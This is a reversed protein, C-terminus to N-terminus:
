QNGAVTMGDIRVTPANVSMRFILDNAPTLERFMDLLNGAITAEAVPEAIRGDRILFGGAGRSYDGTLGNVGMGILETVYLGLKIDAILTEPSLAGAELWLNSTGASPAGSTGRSAQGTPALGLQRGTASDVMWGGLVGDSILAVRRTKLGEGDFARSRLGRMLHPDDIVSVGPRFIREGERGILYSTGRAIAAGNMAGVLHGILSTSVRPDFVVPIPGTPVKVPKLRRIAREGATRGIKEPSELDSFYRTHHWDYDRQMGDGEGAVVSASISVSSGQSSGRFGDSTALAIRSMGAGASGGESNTVGPVARAAEEAELAFVRLRDPAIEATEADFLDLDPFPGHSLLSPDALGAYPDEPAGKAMLLARDVAQGLADPTLNSTSVQASRRGLFVRIGIEEGESRSIDELAGLRVGVSASEEGIYVADSADAGAKRALSLMMDLRDLAESETLM